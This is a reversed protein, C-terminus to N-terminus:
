PKGCVELFVESMFPLDESIKKFYYEHTIPRGTSEWDRLDSIFRKTRKVDYRAIVKLSNIPRSERKYSMEPWVCDGIKRDEQSMHYVVM